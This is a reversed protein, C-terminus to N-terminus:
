CSVTRDGVWYADCLRNSKDAYARSIDYLAFFPNATGSWKRKWIKPGRGSGVLKPNQHIERVTVHMKFQTSKNAYNLISSTQREQKRNWGSWMISLAGM